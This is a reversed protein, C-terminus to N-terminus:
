TRTAEGRRRRLEAVRQIDADRRANSREFSALDRARKTEEDVALEPHCHSCTLFGCAMNLDGKDAHEPKEAAADLIAAVASEDITTHAALERIGALLKVDARYEVNCACRAQRLADQWNQSLEAKFKEKEDPTLLEYAYDMFPATRGTDNEPSASAPATSPQTRPDFPANM